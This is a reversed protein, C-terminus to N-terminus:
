DMTARQLGGRPSDSSPLARRGIRAEIWVEGFIEFLQAQVMEKALIIGKSFPCGRGESSKDCRDLLAHLLRSGADISLSGRALVRAHLNPAPYTAADHIAYWYICLWLGVTPIERHLVYTKRNKPTPCLNM